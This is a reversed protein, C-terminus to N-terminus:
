LPLLPFNIPAITSQFEDAFYPNCYLNQPFEDFLINISSIIRFQTVLTQARNVFESQWIWKKRNKFKDNALKVLSDSAPINTLKPSFKKKEKKSSQYISKKM